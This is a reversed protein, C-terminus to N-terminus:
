AAVSDDLGAAFMSYTSRTIVPVLVPVRAKLILFVPFMGIVPIVMVPTPPEGVGDDHLGVIDAVDLTGGPRATPTLQEIVPVKLAQFPVKVTVNESPLV